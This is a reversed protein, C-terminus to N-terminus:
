AALAVKRAPPAIVGLVVMPNANRRRLIHMGEALAREVHWEELRECDEIRQELERVKVLRDAGYVAKSDDLNLADIEAHLRATFAVPDLWAQFALYDDAPRAGSEASAGASKCSAM